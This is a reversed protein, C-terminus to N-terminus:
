QRASVPRSNENGGAPKSTIWKEYEEPFAVEYRTRHTAVEDHYGLLAASDILKEIVRPEPSFHLLSTALAHISEANASSLPTTGLEAFKVQNGFLRTDRIKSLTDDAYAPSRAAVPLYIQSIRQYESIVWASMVILCLAVAGQFYHAVTWKKQSGETSPEASSQSRPWLLVLCLGAALQFPGYWLPYELMSHLLLLALVSWGMQRSADRERWPKARLGVWICSGCILLAAPIGLEVALHLPMNHANDLIDCFREGQYLTIYHAYDLQGWGWGTLPKQSILNWVNSWLVVRSACGEATGFRSLADGVGVGSVAQLLWPLSFMALIYIGFAFCVLGLSPRAKRASWFFTLALIMAWQVAGTRSASAANGLALLTVTLGASWGLPGGRYKWLVALLGIGTLTAFHNRQRLNGFAEGVRAANIWPLLADRLGFYQSIGIVASLLAAALWADAILRPTVVPEFHAAHLLLLAATCVGATLLPLM